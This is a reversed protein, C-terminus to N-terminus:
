MVLTLDHSIHFIQFIWAKVKVLSVSVLTQITSVNPPLAAHLYM